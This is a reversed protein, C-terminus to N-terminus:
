STLTHDLWPRRPINCPSEKIRRLNTQTNSETNARQVSWSSTMASGHPPRGLCKTICIIDPLQAPVSSRCSTSECPQVLVYIESRSMPPTLVFLLVNLRSTFTDAVLRPHVNRVLLQQLICSFLSPRHMHSGCSREHLPM